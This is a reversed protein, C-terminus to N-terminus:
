QKMQKSFPALSESVDLLVIISLPSSEAGFLSIEQQVGDEYLILDGKQLDEVQRQNKDFVHFALNVVDVNVRLPTSSYDALPDTQAVAPGPSFGLILILFILALFPM